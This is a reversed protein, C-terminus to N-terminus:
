RSPSHRATRVLGATRAGIRRGLERYEQVLDDAGTRAPRTPAAPLGCDERCGAKFANMADRELNRANDIGTKLAPTLLQDCDKCRTFLGARM